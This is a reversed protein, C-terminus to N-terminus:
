WRTQHDVTLVHTLLLYSSASSSLRFTSVKLLSGWSIWLLEIINGVLDLTIPGLADEGDVIGM